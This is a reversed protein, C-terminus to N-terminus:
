QYRNRHCDGNRHHKGWRRHHCHRHLNRHHGRGAGIASQCCQGAYLDLERQQHHRFQWSCRTHRNTTRIHAHGGCGCRHGCSCGHRCVCWRRGGGGGSATGTIVPADETGTVMITLTQPTIGANGDAIDFTVIITTSDAPSMSQFTAHSPDVSVTQVGDFTVGPQLEALNVVSLVDDPNPDSASQLLDRTFGPADESTESLLAGSVVPPLNGSGSGQITVTATQTVVGGNGDVVDYSYTIVESDGANLAGYASPNVSLANGVLTVGSDDGSLFTLNSVTLVDSADVDDTGDLLDLTFAADQESATIALAAAVTPADNSNNGILSVRPPGLHPAKQNGKDYDLCSSPSIPRG